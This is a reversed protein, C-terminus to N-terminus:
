FSISSAPVCSMFSAHSCKTIDNSSVHICKLAREIGSCIEHEISASLSVSSAPESNDYRCGTTESVWGAKMRRLLKQLREPSQQKYNMEVHGDKSLAVELHLHMTAQDDDPYSRTRM